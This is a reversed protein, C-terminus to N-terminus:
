SDGHLKHLYRWRVGSREVQRERITLGGGAATPGRRGHPEAARRTRPRRRRRLRRDPATRPEALPDHPPEVVPRTTM